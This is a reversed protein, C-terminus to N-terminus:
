TLRLLPNPELSLRSLCEEVSDRFVEVDLNGGPCVMDPWAVPRQRATHGFIASYPRWKFIKCLEACIMIASDIDAQLMPPGQDFPRRSHPIEELKRADGHIALGIFRPNLISAHPTQVNVPVLQHIGGQWCYFTYGARHYKLENLAQKAMAHPSADGERYWRHILIGELKNLDRLDRRHAPLKQDYQFIQDIM